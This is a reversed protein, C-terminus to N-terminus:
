KRAVFLRDIEADALRDQGASTDVVLATGSPTVWVLHNGLRFVEKLQPRRRLLRFYADSQAKVVLTPMKPDFGEDVWVGGVELVNRGNAQRQATRELQSQNRLNQMQVSLDVGLKGAQLALREKEDRYRFLVRARDYADKKERAETYTRSAPDVGPLGPTSSGAGPYGGKATGGGAGPYGKPM